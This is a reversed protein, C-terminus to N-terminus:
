IAEFVVRLLPFPDPFLEEEDVRFLVFEEPFFVDPLVFRVVEVVFFFLVELFVVVAFREFVEALLPLALCASSGILSSIM